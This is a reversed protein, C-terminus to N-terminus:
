AGNKIGKIEEYFKPVTALSMTTMLGIFIFRTFPSPEGGASAIQQEYTYWEYVVILTIITKVIDWYTITIHDGVKYGQVFLSAIKAQIDPRFEPIVPNFFRIMSVLIGSAGSGLVVFKFYQEIIWAFLVSFLILQFLKVFDYGFLEISKKKSGKLSELALKAGITGVTLLTM